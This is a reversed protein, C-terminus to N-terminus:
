SKLFPRFSGLWQLRVAGGDVSRLEFSDNNAGLLADTIKGDVAMGNAEQFARVATQTKPGLKGDVGGVDYGLATLKQQVTTIRAQEEPSKEGKKSYAIQGGFLYKFSLNCKQIAPNDTGGAKFPSTQGPLIPDYDLLADEAKVLEGSSTRFEGVAM